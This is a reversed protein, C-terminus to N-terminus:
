NKKLDACRHTPMELEEEAGEPGNGRDQWSNRSTVKKLLGRTMDVSRVSLTRPM